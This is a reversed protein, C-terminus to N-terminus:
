QKLERLQDSRKITTDPNIRGNGSIMFHARLEAKTLADATDEGIEAEILANLTQNMASLLEESYKPDL